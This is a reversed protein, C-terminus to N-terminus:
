SNWNRISQSLGKLDELNYKALSDQIEALQEVRASFMAESIMGTTHEVSSLATVATNAVSSTITAVDKMIKM